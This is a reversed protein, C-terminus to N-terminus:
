AFGIFEEEETYDRKELLMCKRGLPDAFVASLGAEIYSPSQSFSIGKSRLEFCAELCDNTLLVVDAEVDKGLYGPDSAAGQFVRAHIGLTQEYFNAPEPQVPAQPQATQKLSLPM